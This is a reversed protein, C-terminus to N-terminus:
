TGRGPYSGRQSGGGANGSCWGVLRHSGTVLQSGISPASPRVWSDLGNVMEDLTTTFQLETDPSM